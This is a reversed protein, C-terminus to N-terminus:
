LNSYGANVSVAEVPMGTSFKETEQRIFEEPTLYGLSSHLRENNYDIRWKEIIGRAHELTLFWNENL